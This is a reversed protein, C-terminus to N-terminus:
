HTIDGAVLWQELTPSEDKVRDRGLYLYTLPWFPWSLSRHGSALQPAVSFTAHSAPARELGVLSLFSGSQGSAMRPLSFYRPSSVKIPSIFKSYVRVQNYTLYQGAWCSATLPPELTWRALFLPVSTNSKSETGVYFFFSDLYSYAMLAKSLIM